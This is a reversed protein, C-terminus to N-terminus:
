SEEPPPAPRFFRKRCSRCRFPYRGILRLLAPITGESSSRRIDQSGCQPCTQREDEAPDASPEPENADLGPQRPDKKPDAPSGEATGMLPSCLM